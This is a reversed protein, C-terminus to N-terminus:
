RRSSLIAAVEPFAKMGAIFAETYVRYGRPLPHDDRDNPYLPGGDGTVAAELALRANVFPIGRAGLFAIMDAEYGREAAIDDTVPRPVAINRVAMYNRLVSPKSPVLLVALGTGTKKALEDIEALLVKTIALGDASDPEGHAYHSSVITHIDETALPLEIRSDAGSMFVMENRLPEWVYHVLVSGLRTSRLWAMVRDRGSRRDSGGATWDAEQRGGCASTVLERSAYAKRWYDLRNAIYCTDAFDNGLFLSIVILKPHRNHLMEEALYRYQAFGYGGIGANYTPLGTVAEFVRPWSEGNPANYGYAHSDGLVVVDVKNLGEPNRFGGADIGPAYHPPLRYLLVPDYLRGPGSIYPSGINLAALGFEGGVLSLLMAGALLLLNAFWPSNQRRVMM